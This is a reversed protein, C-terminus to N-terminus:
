DSASTKTESTELDTREKITSYFGFMMEEWTQEGWNV